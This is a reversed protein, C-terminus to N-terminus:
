PATREMDPPQKRARAPASRLQPNRVGAGALTQTDLSAVGRYGGLGPPPEATSGVEAPRREDGLYAVETQQQHLESQQVCGAAGVFVASIMRLVRIAYLTM